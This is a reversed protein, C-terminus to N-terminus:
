KMSELIQQAADDIKMEDRKLAEVLNLIFRDEKDEITEEMMGPADATEKEDSGAPMGAQFGIRDGFETHIHESLKRINPYNFLDTTRLSINLRDNIRNIIEVALISDVGIDTYSADFTLDKPDIQLVGSVTEKVM